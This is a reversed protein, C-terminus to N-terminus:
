LMSRDFRNSPGADASTGSSSSGPRSRHPALAQVGSTTHFHIGEVGRGLSQLASLGLPDDNRQGNEHSGTDDLVQWVEQALGALTHDVGGPQYGIDVNGLGQVVAGAGVPVVHHVATCATRSTQAIHVGHVLAQVARRTGGHEGM